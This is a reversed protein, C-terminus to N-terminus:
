VTHLLHRVITRRARHRQGRRVISRHVVAPAGCELVRVRAVLAEVVIGEDALHM